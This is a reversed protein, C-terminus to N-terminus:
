GFRKAAQHRHIGDVKGEGQSFHNANNSGVPRAFGSEKINQAANQGSGSSLNEELILIYSKVGGM